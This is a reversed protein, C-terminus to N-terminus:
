GIWVFDTPSIVIGKKSGEVIITQWYKQPIHGGTGPYKSDRPQVWRRVADARIGVMDGVEKFGGFKEIIKAASSDPLPFDEAKTLKKLSM